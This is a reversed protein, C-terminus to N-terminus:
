GEKGAVSGKKGTVSGEQRTVSGEKGIVSGEETGTVSGENGTVSGEKGDSIRGQTSPQPLPATYVAQRSLSSLQAGDWHRCGPHRCRGVSGAVRRSVLVM